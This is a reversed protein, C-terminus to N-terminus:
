KPTQLYLVGSINEFNHNDSHTHASNYAGKPSINVWM